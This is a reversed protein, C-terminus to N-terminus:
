MCINSCNSFHIVLEPSVFYFQWCEKYKDIKELIISRRQTKTTKMKAEVEKLDKPLVCRKFFKLLNNEQEETLQEEENLVGFREKAKRKKKVNKLANYLYGSRNQTDYLM